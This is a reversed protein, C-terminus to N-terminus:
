FIQAALFTVPHLLRLSHLFVYAVWHWWYLRGIVIFSNSYKLYKPFVLMKKIEVDHFRLIQSYKTSNITMYIKWGTYLNSTRFNSDFKRARLFLIFSKNVLLFERLDACIWDSRWWIQPHSDQFGGGKISLETWFTRLAM